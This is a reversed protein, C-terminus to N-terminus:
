KIFPTRIDLINGSSDVARVRTFQKQVTDLAHKVLIDSNKVYSLTLWDGNSNQFQIRASLSNMTM